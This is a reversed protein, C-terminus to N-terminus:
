TCPTSRSLLSNTVAHVTHTQKHNVGHVKATVRHVKNKKNVWADPAKFERYAISPARGRIGKAENPEVVLDTMSYLSCTKGRPGLGGTRTREILRHEILLKLGKHITSHAWGLPCLVTDTAAFDGNNFGNFQGRLDVYLARCWPPLSKYAESRSVSRPIGIFQAVTARGKSRWAM